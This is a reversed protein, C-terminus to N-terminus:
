KMLQAQMKWLLSRQYTSRIAQKTTMTQATPPLPSGVASMKEQRSRSSTANRGSDLMRLTLNSMRRLLRGLGNVNFRIQSKLSLNAKPLTLLPVSASIKTRPHRNPVAKVIRNPRFAGTTKNIQSNSNAVIGIWVMKSTTQQLMWRAAVRRVTCRRNMSTMWRRAACGMKSVEWVLLVSEWRCLTVMAWAIAQMVWQVMRFSLYKSIEAARNVLNISSSKTRNLALLM